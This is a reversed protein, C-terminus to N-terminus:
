RILLLDSAKNATLWHKIDPMIKVFDGPLLKEEVGDENEYVVEGIVCVLLAPIKSKHEKLQNGSEISIATVVENPSFINKTQLPKDETHIEKLNM